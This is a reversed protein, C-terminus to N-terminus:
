LRSQNSAQHEAYGKNYIKAKSQSVTNADDDEAQLLLMSQLAYRRYYTIASGMKQPDINDPLAISSELLNKDGDFLITFLINKGEAVKIPQILILGVENLIPKINEILGNIDFYKSNFFPNTEDKSIAGVKKQFELLKDM